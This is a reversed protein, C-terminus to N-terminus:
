SKAGIYKPEHAEKRIAAFVKRIALRSANNAFVAPIAGGTDSYILYTARTTGNGTPELLWSGECVKVRQVGAKQAPGLDNAPEWRIHYTAGGPGPSQSHESRLTYDRDDVLPLKLRHYAVVVDDTQKLIRVEASYPMFSPYAEADVLVAYVARPPSDILGVSKFEKIASGARTRSYIVVGDRNATEEWATNGDIGALAQGSLLAVFAIAIRNAALRRSTMSICYSETSSM